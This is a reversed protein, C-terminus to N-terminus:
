SDGVIGNGNTDIWFQYQPIGNNCVDITSDTADLTVIQGPGDLPDGITSAPTATLVPTVTTCTGCSLRGVLTAPDVLITLPSSLASDVRIDDIFWGDDGVVNDM